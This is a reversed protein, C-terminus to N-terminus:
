FKAAMAFIILITTFFWVSSIPFSMGQRRKRARERFHTLSFYGVVWLPLSEREGAGSLIGRNTTSISSTAIARLSSNSKARTIQMVNMNGRIM